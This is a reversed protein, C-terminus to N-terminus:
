ESGEEPQATGAALCLANNTIYGRVILELARDGVDRIAEAHAVLSDILRREEDAIAADFRAKGAWEALRWDFLATHISLLDGIGARNLARPALRILATDVIIRDPIVFGV